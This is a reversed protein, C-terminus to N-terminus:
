NFSSYLKKSLQINNKTSHMVLQLVLRFCVDHFFLFIQQIWNRLVQLIKRFIPLIMSLRRIKILFDM